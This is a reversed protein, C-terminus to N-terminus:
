EELGYVESRILGGATAVSSECLLGYRKATEKFDLLGKAELACTLNFFTYMIKLLLRHSFPSASSCHFDVVLLKGEASLSHVLKSLIHDLREQQFMDFFYCALIRDYDGLSSISNEDGHIFNLKVETSRGITIAKAKKLMAESAEVYDIEHVKKVKLIENIIWGSGGGIILLKDGDNLYPVVLQQAIKLKDGFVLRALFDYCWAIRNFNNSVM